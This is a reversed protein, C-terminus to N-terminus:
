AASLQRPIQGEASLLMAGDVQEECKKGATSGKAAGVGGRGGQGDAGAAVCCWAARVQPSPAHNFLCQDHYHVTRWGGQVLAQAMLGDFHDEQLGMESQLYGFRRQETIFKPYNLVNAGLDTHCRHQWPGTALNLVPQPGPSTCASVTHLFAHWHASPPRKLAPAPQAPPQLM